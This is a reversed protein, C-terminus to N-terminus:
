EETEEVEKGKRKNRNLLFTTHKEKSEKSVGIDKQLCDMRSSLAEIKFDLTEFKENMFEGLAKEHDDMRTFFDNMRNGLTTLALTSDQISTSPQFRTSPATVTSPPQQYNNGTPGNQHSVEQPHQYSTSNLAVSVTGGWEGCNDCKLYPKGAKSWKTEVFGARCVICNGEVLNPNAPKSDNRPRKNNYNM